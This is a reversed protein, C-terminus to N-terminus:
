SGSWVGVAGSLFCFVSGGICSNRGELNSPACLNTCKRDLCVERWLLFCVKEALGCITRLVEMLESEFACLADFLVM